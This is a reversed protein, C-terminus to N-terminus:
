IEILSVVRRQNRVYEVCTILTLRNDGFQQLPSFDTEDIITKMFVEYSRVVGGIDVRVIDGYQLLRVFSFFGNRAGRNHGILGVNGYHLGTFSFHGAGFDMAEMTAGGYINVTRGLREVTLVGLFAGYEYVQSIINTNAHAIAYSNQPRSNQAQVSENFHVAREGGGFIYPPPRNAMVTIPAALAFFACVAGIIALKTFM